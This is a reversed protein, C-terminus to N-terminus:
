VEALPAALRSDPKALMIQSVGIRREAFGAECYCLYYHWTRIFREDFGLQRVQDINALFNGRWCALTRAYHHAFDELHVLRLDTVRRLSKGIASFCPLFGGPFIYRNIFDISRRYRDFREDPILISQLLMVGNSKLLRSCQGFYTDFMREGVAEVMEISVLKDYSGRLERYDRQLLEIRDELGAARVRERALAHQQRSITTTTVRCGYQRAAHLAFGGWGTGIELVHDAPKLRLKRCIRDYKESSAQELTSGPQEFIGSSYTMTPDLMLAFFENSLDYHAAINRRSGAPSNRHRWMWLERLPRLVRSQWGDMSSLVHANRTFLRLAATLDDTDWDGRLYAEAAGLTGGRAVQTYLRPHHVTIRVHAHSEVGSDFEANGQPDLITLRGVALQRLRSLLLARCGRQLRTAVPRPRGVRPVPAVSRLRESRPAVATERSTLVSSM